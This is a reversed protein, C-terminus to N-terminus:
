RAYRSRSVSASNELEVLSSYGGEAGADGFRFTTCFIDIRLALKIQLFIGPDHFRRVGFQSNNSPLIEQSFSRTLCSSTFLALVCVASPYLFALVFRRDAEEFTISIKLPHLTSRDKKAPQFVAYIKLRYKGHCQKSKSKELSRTSLRQHSSIARRGEPTNFSSYSYKNM